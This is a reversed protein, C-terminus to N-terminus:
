IIVSSKLLFDRISRPPTRGVYPENQAISFAAAKVMVLFPDEVVIRDRIVFRYLRGNKRVTVQREIRCPECEAPQTFPNATSFLKSKM